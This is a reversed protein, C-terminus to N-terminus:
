DAKSISCRSPVLDLATCLPQLSSFFCDTRQRGEFGTTWAIPNSRFYPNLRPQVEQQCGLRSTSTRGCPAIRNDGEGVKCNWTDQNLSVQM